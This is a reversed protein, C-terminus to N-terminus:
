RAVINVHFPKPVRTLGAVDDSPDPKPYNRSCTIKLQQLIMAAFVFYEARSLSEGMCVRKGIGFPILRDRHNSNLFREPRFVEPDGWYDPDMHVAHINFFVINGKKIEYGEIEIRESAIHPISAPAVCALRQVEMLTADTYPVQSRDEIEPSEMGIVKILEQHCKEQVDPNLAMYLIFWALTNGVTEGGAEFFDVCIGILDNKEISASEGAGSRM